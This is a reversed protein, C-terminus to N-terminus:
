LWHQSALYEVIQWANTAAGKYLNDAVIWLNLTAAYSDDRRIRGVFVEQHGEALCPMPYLKQTPDNQLVIGHSQQLIDIITDLEFDKDFTSNVALAHGGMVPVRVATATIALEAHDLIKKTENVMKMEEKTYGNELFDDIHPIVNLDIPHPYARAKPIIGQREAMLQEVAVRGGGTVSQYTCVVIRKLKYLAHLPALPLLMQITCCNPNAILRDTKRLVHKNVEPIILPYNRDMRWASSNDIVTTGISIFQPAWELSIYAEVAFIALTPQAALAEAISVLLQQQNHYTITHGQSDQSAVLILENILIDSHEIIKLLTQGVLGTVGIIAIKM